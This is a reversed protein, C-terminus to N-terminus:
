SPLEARRSGSGPPAARASIGKGPPARSTPPSLTPPTRDMSGRARDYRITTRPDAHSAAEQVDRLPVWRGFQHHYVCAAAHPAHRGQRDRRPPCGQPRGARRRAPGAASRGRGPVGARGHAGRHGPRDGPGDTFIPQIMVLATSPAATTMPCRGAPSLGPPAPGAAPGLSEVSAWRLGCQGSV